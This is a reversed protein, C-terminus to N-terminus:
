SEGDRSRASPIQILHFRPGAMVPAPPGTPIASRLRTLLFEILQERPMAALQSLMGALPPTPQTPSPTATVLPKGVQAELATLIARCAAAGAARADASVGPAVAARISAILGDLSRANESPSMPSPASPASPAVDAERTAEARHHDQTGQIDTM